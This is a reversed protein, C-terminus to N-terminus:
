VYRKWRLAIEEAIEEPSFGNTELVEHATSIYAFRREQMLRRAAGEVDEGCLLPRKTGDMASRRLAEDLSVHLLFVVAKERLLRTNEEVTVVGGGCAVVVGVGQLAARLAKTERARFGSEGEKKFIAPISMSADREIELDLDIFTKDLKSALIRGVTSKGAGMFGIIAINKELM